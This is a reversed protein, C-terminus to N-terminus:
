GEIQEDKDIKLLHKKCLPCQIKTVTEVGAEIMSECPNVHIWMSNGVRHEMDPIYMIESYLRIYYNLGTGGQHQFKM